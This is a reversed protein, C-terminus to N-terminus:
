KKKGKPLSLSSAINKPDAIAWSGDPWHISDYGERTVRDMLDRQFKAYNETLRYQGVEQETLRYPNQVNAFVPMVRSATNTDRYRMTSTDFVASQSDNEKAYQSASAPDEGLWTGRRSKKFWPFDVDKSTGHYLEKLDGAADVLQSKAFEPRAELFVKRSMTGAGGGVFNMPDQLYEALTNASADVLAEGAASPNQAMDVLNNAVTRRKSDLWGLMSNIGGM